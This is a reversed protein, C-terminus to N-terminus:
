QFWVSNFDNPKMSEVKEEVKSILRVMTVVKKELQKLKKDRFAREKIPVEIGGSLITSRPKKRRDFTIYYLATYILHIEQHLADLERLVPINILKYGEMDHWLGFGCKSHDVPKKIQEQPKGELLKYGEKILSIHDPKALELNKLILNKNMLTLITKDSDNM